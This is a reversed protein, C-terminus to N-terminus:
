EDVGREFSFNYYQSRLETRKQCLFAYAKSMALYYSNPHTTYRVSVADLYTRLGTERNTAWVVRHTNVTVKFRPLTRMYSKFSPSLETHIEWQFSGFAQILKRVQNRASALTRANRRLKGVYVVKDTDQNVILYQM